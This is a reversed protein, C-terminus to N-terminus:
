NITNLKNSLKYLLSLQFYRGPMPRWEISEYYSNGINQVGFSATFENQKLSLTYAIDIDGTSYPALFSENDTSTYRGGTFSHRYSLGLNKYHYSLAVYNKWFPVYILQKGVSQDQTNKQVENSALIFSGGYQIQYSENEKKWLYKSEWEAGRNHVQQLNQPTWYGNDPLWIIWQDIISYFATLRAHVLYKPTHHTILYGLEGSYGKEPQLNPDGGPNWYLDNLNPLRSVHALHARIISKRRITYDIGVSFAPPPTLKKRLEQRLDAKWSINKKKGLQGYGALYAAGTEVQVNGLKYSNSGAQDIQYLAGLQLFFHNLKRRYQVQNLWRKGNNLGHLNKSPDHYWLHELFAASNFQVFQLSDTFSVFANFRLSQDEQNATSASLLTPPIQRDSSQYWVDLGAKVGKLNSYHLENLAALGENLAHNMRKTPKGAVTRDAYLFDNSAKQAIMRFRNSWKINNLDFGMKYRQTHFSGVDMGVLFQQRNKAPAQTLELSGGLIGGTSLNNQAGSNLEVQDFLFGQILSLDQQGNMGSQINLGNWLIPSHSAGTGRISLSALMGPGYSKIVAPSSSQLVLGLDNQLIAFPLTQISKGNALPAKNVDRIEAERLVKVTDAPQALATLGALLFTVHVFFRKM